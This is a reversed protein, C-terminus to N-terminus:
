GIKFWGSCRVTLTPGDKIKINLEDTIYRRKSGEQAPPTIEVDLGVNLGEKKQNVVKMYGNKSVVNEVEFAQGFNNVIWVERKTVAGPETNQLIIRGPRLEFMPLSNFVVAVEKTDPHDIKIQIIGSNVEQLKQIDVKPSLVHEVKKDKSDFECTAVQGTANFNTIAFPINDISKVKITSMGGNAKNVALEIKNPDVTVKVVVKGKITLEARPNANDNSIIYLHKTVPGPYAPAHFTVDVVGSEGPNYEKKSIEPVSCGCTSQVHSIKLIGKGVNSFKYQCKSVSDPGLDGFDHVPNEIKISAPEENNDKNETSAPMIPNAVAPSTPAIEASPAPAQIKTEALPPKAETQQCGMTSTMVGTLVMIIATRLMTKM